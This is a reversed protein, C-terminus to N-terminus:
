IWGQGLRRGAPKIAMERRKKRADNGGQAGSTHSRSATYRTGGKTAHRCLLFKSEDSNPGSSRGQRPWRAFFKSSEDMRTIRSPAGPAPLPVWAPKMVLFNPMG